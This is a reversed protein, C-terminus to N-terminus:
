ERKIKPPLSIGVGNADGEGRAVINGVQQRRRGENKEKNRSQHETEKGRGSGELEVEEASERQM